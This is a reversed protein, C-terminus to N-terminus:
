LKNTKEIKKKIFFVIVLIITLVIGILLIPIIKNNKVFETGNVKGFSVQEIINGTIKEIVNPETKENYTYKKDKSYTLKLEFNSANDENVIWYYTNTKKDIKTANSDIVDYYSQIKIVINDVDFTYKYSTTLKKVNDIDGTNVTFNGSSLTYFDYDKNGNTAISSGSRISASYNDDGLKEAENMLKQRDKQWKSMIEQKEADDAIYAKYTFDQSSANKISAVEDASAVYIGVSKKDSISYNIGFGGGIVLIFATATAIIKKAVNNTRRQKKTAIDYLNDIARDSVEIQNFANKYRNNSM